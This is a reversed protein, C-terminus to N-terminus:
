ERVNKGFGKEVLVNRSDGFPIIHTAGKPYAFGNLHNFNMSRNREDLKTRRVSRKMRERCAERSPHPPYQQLLCGKGQRKRHM